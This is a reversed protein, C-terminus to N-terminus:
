RMSAAWAGGGNAADTRKGGETGSARICRALVATVDASLLLRWCILPLDRSFDANSPALLLVLPLLWPLRPLRPSSALLLPLLPLVLPLLLLLM